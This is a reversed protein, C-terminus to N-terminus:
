WVIDDKRQLNLGNRREASYIDQKLSILLVLSETELTTCYDHM